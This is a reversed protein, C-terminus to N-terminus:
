ATAFKLADKLLAGNSLQAVLAGCFVDGAATSDVANVDFAPVVFTGNGDKTISGKDGLTLVVTGIGKKLLNDIAHEEGALALPEGAVLEIETENVMLIDILKLVESRVKRAPALNLLVKAQHKRALTCVVEITDNPIEMQMVVYSASRIDDELTRLY